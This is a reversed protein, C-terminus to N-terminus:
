NIVELVEGTRRDYIETVASGVVIVHRCLAHEGFVRAVSTNKKTGSREGNTYKPEPSLQVVQEIRQRRQADRYIADLNEGRNDANECGKCVSCAGVSGDRLCVRCTGQKWEQKGIGLQSLSQEASAAVGTPCDNTYSEGSVRAADGASSLSSADSDGRLRRTLAAALDYRAAECKAELRSGSYHKRLVMLEDMHQVVLDTQKEVFAKTDRVPSSQRGAYWNGGLKKGLENDYLKRIHSPADHGLDTRYGWLRMALIDESSAGKPITRGFSKAIARLGDHDSRDLSMSTAEIGTDTRQFIRVLTKKRELDYANLSDGQLVADPIPSLVVLLEPDDEGGLALRRMEDYEQRELRRRVLETIFQPNKQAIEEAVQIGKDFVEGLAQDQFWLEGDGHIEYNFRNHMPAALRESMDTVEDILQREYEFQRYAEFRAQERQTISHRINLM